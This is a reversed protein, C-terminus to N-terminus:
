ETVPKFDSATFDYTWAVYQWAIVDLGEKISLTGRYGYSYGAKFDRENIMIECTTPVGNVKLRLLAIVPKSIGYMPLVNVDIRISEDTPDIRYDYFNYTGFKRGHRVDFPEDTKSQSMHWEVGDIGTATLSGDGSDELPGDYQVGSLEMGSPQIDLDHVGEGKTIWFRLQATQNIMHSLQVEFTERNQTTSAVEITTPTTRDYRCDNAYFSDGNHVRFKIKGEALANEDLARAPSIASFTYSMNDKLYLPSGELSLVKGYSDVSCPVLFSVLNGNPDTEDPNFVVYSKKNYKGDSGKALLWVTSGEPLRTTPNDTLKDNTQDGNDYARSQEVARPMADYVGPLVPRVEVMGEPVERTTEGPIEAGDTCAGLLTLVAAVAPIHRSINPIKYM